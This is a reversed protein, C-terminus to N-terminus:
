SMWEYLNSVPLTETLVLLANVTPYGHTLM